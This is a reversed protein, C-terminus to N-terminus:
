RGATLEFEGRLMRIVNMYARGDHYNAKWIGAKPSRAQKPDEDIGAAYWGGRKHDVLNADIYRWQSEFAERYKAEDPFLQSMMLMANLSEGQVWWIKERSIVEPAREEDFYYGEGFLGGSERDWGTALAHDVMRKAVALTREDFRGELAHAAELMLFATEVDHGWTVHDWPANALIKRRSQGRNSIPKWDRTFYMALYGKEQAFVDRVIRLLERLRAGLAADPWEHYLATFAELIHITSNYDKVGWGKAPDDPRDKDGAWSGDRELRDVYGSREEDWAHEDLWLFAQRALELAEPDGSMRHYSALGYIAFAIGYAQKGREPALPKGHRAVYAHFGGHEADRMNDRLFRFGQEALARYAPDGTFQALQSTTWLHRAQSVIFKRQAGVPKWNADFDSLFGGSKTDASRPYWAPLFNERFSAEIPQLFPDPEGRCLAAVVLAPIIAFRLFRM